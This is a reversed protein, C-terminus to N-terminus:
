IVSLHLLSPEWKSLFFLRKRRSESAGFCSSTKRYCLILCNNAKNGKTAFILNESMTWWIFNCRFDETYLSFNAFYSKNLKLKFVFCTKIETDGKVKTTCDEAWSENFNQFNFNTNYKKTYLTIFTYWFILFHAM